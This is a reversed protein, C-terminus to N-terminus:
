APTLLDATLERTSAVVGCRTQVHRLADAHHAPSFDAVADTVVFPQVGRMFADMATALVGIHAYVGTVILQDRGGLVADLDTGVFASYRRKTLVVDGPAPRLADTIALAQADAPPGDGWFDQLLGRESRSQGGPQASFIVPIGTRGAHERLTAINGVVKSLLANDATGFPALFYNQMDHVLLAARAPEVRWHVKGGARTFGSPLHYPTIRPLM